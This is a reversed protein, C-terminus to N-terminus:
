IFHDLQKLHDLKYVPWVPLFLRVFCFPEVPESLGIAKFSRELYNPWSGSITWGTMTTWSTWLSGVLMSPSVLYFPSVM